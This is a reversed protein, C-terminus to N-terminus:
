RIRGELGTLDDSDVQEETVGVGFSEGVLSTTFEGDGEEDEQGFGFVDEEGSDSDPEPIDIDPLDPTRPRNTRRPQGDTPPRTNAPRGPSGPTNPTTTRDPVFDGPRRSDQIIREGLDQEPELRQRQDQEQIQDQEGIEFQNEQDLTQTSGLQLGLGLGLEQNVDLSPPEPEAVSRTEPREPRARGAPDPLSDGPRSTDGFLDGLSDDPVQPRNQQVLSGAGSGLANTDEIAEQADSLFQEVMSRQEPTVEVVVDSDRNFGALNLSSAGERDALLRAEQQSLTLTEDAESAPATFDSSRDQATRLQTRSAARESVQLLDDESAQDEFEVDTQEERTDPRRRDPQQTTRRRSQVVSDPEFVDAAPGDDQAEGFREIERGLAVSEAEVTEPERAADQGEGVQKRGLEEGFFRQNFATDDFDVEDPETETRTQIPADVTETSSAPTEPVSSARSSVTAAGAGAGAGVGAAVVEPGVEELFFGTPDEQAPEVFSQQFGPGVRGAFDELNSPNRAVSETL